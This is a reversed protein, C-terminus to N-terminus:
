GLQTQPKCFTYDLNNKFQRTHFIICWSIYVWSAYKGITTLLWSTYMTESVSCISSRSLIVHLTWSRLLMFMSPEHDQSWSRPLVHDQSFSCKNYINVSLNQKKKRGGFPPTFERLPKEGVLPPLLSQRHNEKREKRVTLSYVFLVFVIKMNLLFYNSNWIGYSNTLSSWSTTLIILIFLYM